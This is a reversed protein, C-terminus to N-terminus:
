ALLQHGRDLADLLRADALLVPLLHQAAEVVGEAEAAPTALAAATRAALSATAPRRALCPAALCPAALAAPLLRLHTRRRRAQRRHQQAAPGLLHQQRERDGM